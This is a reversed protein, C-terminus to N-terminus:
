KIIVNAVEWFVAARLYTLYLCLLARMFSEPWQRIKRSQLEAEACFPSRFGTDPRLMGPVQRTHFM